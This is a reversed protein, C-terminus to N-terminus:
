PISSQSQNSQLMKGDFITTSHSNFLQISVQGQWIIELCLQPLKTEKTNSIKNRLYHFFFGSKLIEHANRKKKLTHMYNIFLSFAM